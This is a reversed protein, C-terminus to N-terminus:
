SNGDFARGATGRSTLTAACSYDFWYSTGDACRLVRCYTAGSVVDEEQVWEKELHLLVGYADDVRVIEFPKAESGDGTLLVGEVCAISLEVELASLKEDGLKKHALALAEHLYPTLMWNDTVEAALERMGAWDERELLRDFADLEKSWPDYTPLAVLVQRVAVFASLSRSALYEGFAERLRPNM